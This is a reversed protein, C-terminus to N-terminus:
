TGTLTTVLGNKVQISAVLTFPGASAGATGDTSKYAAQVTGVVLPSKVAVPSGSSGDGTLTSGVHVTNTTTPYVSTGM